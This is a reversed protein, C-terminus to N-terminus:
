HKSLDFNWAIVAIYPVLFFTLRSIHVRQVYNLSRIFFHVTYRIDAIYVGAHKSIKYIIVYTM